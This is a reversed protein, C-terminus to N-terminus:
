KGGASLKIEKIKEKIIFPDRIEKGCLVLIIMRNLFLEIEDLSKKIFNFDQEVEDQKSQKVFKMRGITIEDKILMKAANYLSFLKSLMDYEIIDDNFSRKYVNLIKIDVVTKLVIDKLNKSSYIKERYKDLIGLNYMLLESIHKFDEIQKEGYIVEFNNKGIKIDFIKDIENYFILNYLDKGDKSFLKKYNNMRIYQDIIKNFMFLISYVGMPTSPKYKEDYKKLFLNINHNLKNYDGRKISLNHMLSLRYAQNIFLFAEELVISSDLKLLKMKEYVEKGCVNYITIMGKKISDDIEEKSVKKEKKVCNKIKRAM